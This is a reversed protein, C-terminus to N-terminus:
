GACSRASLVWEHDAGGGGACSKEGGGREHCAAARHRGRGRSARRDDRRRDGDVDRDVAVWSATAAAGLRAQTATSRSTSPVSAPVISSGGAASTSVSGCGAALAAAALLAQAPPPRPSTPKIPVSRRRQLGGGPCATAPAANLRHGPVGPCVAYERNVNIFTARPEVRVRPERLAPAAAVRGISRRSGQPHSTRRRSRLTGSIRSTSTTGRSRTATRKFARLSEEAVTKHDQHVDHLAGLSPM